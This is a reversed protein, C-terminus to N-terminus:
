ATSQDVPLSVTFTSGIGIKSTVSITGEHKEVISRAISLGLGYGDQKSRSKDARYFKDFIHLMDNKSIGAGQDVITIIVSKLKKRIKIQITSKKPSYKIANDLLIVFVEVLSAKDGRIIMKKTQATIQIQKQKALPMVKKEAHLLIEQLSIQKLIQEDNLNHVQAIRLLNNSLEQLVGLEELNSRILERARQDSIHKELLSGEMEARLTAIPTRLEHSASSVFQEQDDIMKQIPALTRGALIYAAAGSIVLIGGNIFILLSQLQQKSKKLEELTEDPLEYEFLQRGRLIYGHTQQTYELRRIVREVEYTAARYFAISFLGTIIMIIVLYWFTLKIRASYFMNNQIASKM